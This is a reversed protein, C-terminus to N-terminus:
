SVSQAARKEIDLAIMIDPIGRGIWQSAFINVAPHDAKAGQIYQSQSTGYPVIAPGVLISFGLHFCLQEPHPKLHPAFPGYMHDDGMCGGSVNMVFIVLTVHAKFAKSPENFFILRIIKDMAMDVLFKIIKICPYCLDIPCLHDIGAAM